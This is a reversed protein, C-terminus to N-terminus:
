RGALHAVSQQVDEHGESGQGMISQSFFLQFQQTMAASVKVGTEGKYIPGAMFSALLKACGLTFLPSFKTTDTVEEVWRAEATEMDTYIVKDGNPAIESAFKVPQYSSYGNPMYNSFLAGDNSRKLGSGSAYGVSYDDQTSPPLVAFVKLSKAPRDYSHAWGNVTEDRLTLAGRRTAFPWVHMELLANRAMPYFRAVHEAQESGEPPDIDSVTAEDGLFSLALNGIDVESM